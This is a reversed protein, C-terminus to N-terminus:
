PSGRTPDPRTLFQGFVRPDRPYYPYNPRNLVPRTVPRTARTPYHGAADRSPMKWQKYPSSSCNSSQLSVKGFSAVMWHISFRRGPVISTVMMAIGQSPIRSHLSPCSSFQSSSLNIKYMENDARKRAVIQM